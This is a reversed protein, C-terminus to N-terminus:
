QNPPQRVMLNSHFPPINPNRPIDKCKLIWLMLLGDRTRKNKAKSNTQNNIFIRNQTSFQHNTFTTNHKQDQTKTQDIISLCTQVKLSALKKKKNVLFNNKLLQHMFGTQYSSVLTVSGNKRKDKSKYTSWLRYNEGQSKWQVNWSSSRDVHHPKKIVM